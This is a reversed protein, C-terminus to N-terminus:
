LYNRGCWSLHHALDGQQEQKPTKLQPTKRRTITSAHQASAAELTSSPNTDPCFKFGVLHINRDQPLIKTPDIHSPQGPMSRVFAAGPRVRSGGPM